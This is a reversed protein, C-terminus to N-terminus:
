RILNYIYEICEIPQADIPLRKETRLPMFNNEVKNLWEIDEESLEWKRDRECSKDIYDLVDWINCKPVFFSYWIIITNIVNIMAQKSPKKM